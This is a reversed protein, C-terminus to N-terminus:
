WRRKHTPKTRGGNVRIQHLRRVRVTPWSRDEASQQQVDTSSRRVAMKCLSSSRHNPLRAMRGVTIKM